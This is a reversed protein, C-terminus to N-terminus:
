PTIVHSCEACLEVPMRPLGLTVNTDDGMAVVLAADGCRAGARPARYHWMRQSRHAELSAQLALQLASSPPVVVMDMLAAYWVQGSCHQTAGLRAMPVGTHSAAGGSGGCRSAM